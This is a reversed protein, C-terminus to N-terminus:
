SAEGLLEWETKHLFIVNESAFVRVFEQIAHPIAGDIAVWAMDPYRPSPKQITGTIGTISPLHASHIRVRQGTKITQKM